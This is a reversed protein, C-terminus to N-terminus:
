HRSFMLLDAAPAPPGAVFVSGQHHGHRCPSNESVGDVTGLHYYFTQVSVLACPGPFRRPVPWTQIRYACLLLILWFLYNVHEKPFFLFPHVSSSSVPLHIM